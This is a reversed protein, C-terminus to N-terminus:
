KAIKERLTAVSDANPADEADLLAAFAEFKGDANFKTHKKVVACASNALELAQYGDGDCYAEIAMEVLLAAAAAPDKTTSTSRFQAIAAAALIELAHVYSGQRDSM